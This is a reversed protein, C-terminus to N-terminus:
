CGYFGAIGGGGGGTASLSVFVSRFAIRDITWFGVYQFLM